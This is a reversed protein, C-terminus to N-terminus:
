TRELTEVAAIGKYNRYSLDDGESYEYEEYGELYGGTSDGWNPPESFDEDSAEGAGCKAAIRHLDWQLQLLDWSSLNDPDEAHWPRSM